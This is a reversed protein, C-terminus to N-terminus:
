PLVGAYALSALATVHLAVMAWFVVRYSAKTTKHRFLRQALLACPWGGALELAHLTSEPIRSHGRQAATKDSRYCALTVLNAAALWALLSVPLQGRVIATAVLAAYALVLLVLASAPVPNRAAARTAVAAAGHKGRAPAVARRVRSARWRGDAQKAASFKVLEGIDPRRTGPDYDRVHFFVRGESGAGAADGAHADIRTVFGFGREDHWESIRGLVDMLAM